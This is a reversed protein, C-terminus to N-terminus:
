PDLTSLSRNPTSPQSCPRPDLTEGSYWPTTESARLSCTGISCTPNFYPGCPPNFFPDAAATAFAFCALRLLQPSPGARRLAASFLVLRGSDWGPHLRLDLLGACLLCRPRLNRFLRLRWLSIHNPHLLWSSPAFGRCQPLSFLVSLLKFSLGSFLKQLGSAPQRDVQVAAPITAPCPWSPSPAAAVQFGVAALWALSGPGLLFLLCLSAPRTALTAFQAVTVTLVDRVHDDESERM